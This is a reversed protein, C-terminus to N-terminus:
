RQKKATRKRWYCPSKGVLAVFPDDFYDNASADFYTSRIENEELFGQWMKVFTTKGDGWQADLSIVLNDEINMVLSTLQEAFPKRGLCDNKFTEQPDIVIEPTILRM